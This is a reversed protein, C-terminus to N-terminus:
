TSKPMVTIFTNYKIGFERFDLEFLSLFKRQVIENYQSRLLKNDYWQVSYLIGQTDTRGVNRSSDEKWRRKEKGKRKKEGKGKGGGEAEGKGKDKRREKRKEGEWEEVGTGEGERDRKGKGEGKGQM